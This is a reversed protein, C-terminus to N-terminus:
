TCVQAYMLSGVESSYYVNKMMMREKVNKPCQDKSLREGKMVLVSGLSYNHM